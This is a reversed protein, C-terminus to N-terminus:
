QFRYVIRFLPSLDTIWLTQAPIIIRFSSSFIQGLWGVVWPMLPHELKDWVWAIKTKQNAKYTLLFKTPCIAQWVLCLVLSDSPDPLQNLWLFQSTEGLRHWGCLVFFWLWQWALAQEQMVPKSCCSREAQWFGNSAPAPQNKFLLTPPRKLSLSFVYFSFYVNAKAWCGHSLFYIVGPLFLGLLVISKAMNPHHIM